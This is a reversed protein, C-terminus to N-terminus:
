EGDVSFGSAPLYRAFEDRSMGRAETERVLEVYAAFIRAAEDPTYREEVLGLQEADELRGYPVAAAVARDVRELLDLLEPRREPAEAMAAEAERRIRSQLGELGDFQRLSLYQGFLGRLTWLEEEVGEPVPIRAADLEVAPPAPLLGGELLARAVEHAIRENTAVTPHVYDVLQEFGLLRDATDRELIAVLDVLPLRHAAAAERVTPNFLSRVPFGDVEVARAFHPRADAARGLRLLAAGLEFQTEAHEPDVAAAAALDVAAAEDRGARAALVGSRYAERWREREPPPLSARHFSTCPRWDKLNLPSTLLLLPVRRAACARAMAELNARFHEGVLRLREPDRRLDNARGFATGVRNDAMAEPGYARVSFTPRVASAVAFARRLLRFAALREGLRGATPGAAAPFVVREVFENNGDYFVIADPQYALVEDLVVRVRHSGYTNGAANVVEITFGPLLRRLKAELLKPYSAAPHHPWGQAASGGLCFVRYTHPGKAATFREGAPIWHHETRVYMPPASSDDRRFVPVVETPVAFQGPLAGGAPLLRALAAELLRSSGELLLGAVVVAAAIFLLRRRRRHDAPATPM